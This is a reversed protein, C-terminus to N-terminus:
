LGQLAHNALERDRSLHFTDLVAHMAYEKLVMNGLLAILAPPEMLTRARLVYLLQQTLESSLHLL